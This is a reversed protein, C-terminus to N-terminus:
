RVGLRNLLVTNVTEHLEHVVTSFTFVSHNGTFFPQLLKWQKGEHHLPQSPPIAQQWQGADRSIDYRRNSFSGLEFNSTHNRSFMYQKRVMMFDFFFIRLQVMM